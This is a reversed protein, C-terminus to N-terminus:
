PQGALIARLRGVATQAAPPTFMLVRHKDNPWWSPLEPAAETPPPRFLGTLRIPPRPYDIEPM